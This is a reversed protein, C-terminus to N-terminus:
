LCSLNGRVNGSRWYTCCVVSKVCRNMIAPNYLNLFHKMRRESITLRQTSLRLDNWIKKGYVLVVSQIINQQTFASLFSAWKAELGM